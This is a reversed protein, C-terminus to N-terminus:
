SRASRWRELGHFPTLWQHSPHSVLVAGDNHRPIYGAEAGPSHAEIDLHTTQPAPSPQHYTFGVRCVALILRIGGQGSFGSHNMLAHWSGALGPRGLCFGPHCGADLWLRLEDRCVPSDEQKSSALVLQSPTYKPQVVSPFSGDWWPHQMRTEKKPITPRAM